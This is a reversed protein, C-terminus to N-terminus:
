RSTGDSLADAALIGKRIDQAIEKGRKDSTALELYSQVRSALLTAQSNSQSDFYVLDSNTKQFEVNPFRSNYDIVAGLRELENWPMETCYYTDIPERGMPAYYTASSVGSLVIRLKSTQNIKALLSQLDKQATIKCRRSETVVPAEYNALLQQLLKDPQLLRIQEKSKEVVLDEELQKLAKSVTSLTITGGRRTIEDRINSVQQFSKKCLFVRAVLSSTGKYVRKVTRSLPYKNPKGTRFVLLEGPFMILGNGCLDIGSVREEELAQLQPESLWPVIVLPQADTLKATKQAQVAAGMVERDSAYRKVEAAFRCTKNQWQAELLLDVDIGSALRVNSDLVSFSLPPLSLGGKRIYDFIERETEM